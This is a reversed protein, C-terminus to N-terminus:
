YASGMGDLVGGDVLAGVEASGVVTGTVSIEDVVGASEVAGPSGIEVPVVPPGTEVPPEVICVAVSLVVACATTPSLPDGSVPTVLATTTTM